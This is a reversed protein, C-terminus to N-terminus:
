FQLKARESAFILLVDWQTHSLQAFCKNKSSSSHLSSDFFIILRNKKLVFRIFDNYRLNAM